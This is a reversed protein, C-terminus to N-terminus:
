VAERLRRRRSLETLIRDHEAHGLTYRRAGLISLLIFLIPVASTLARIAVLVVDPNEVNPEFGVLDLAAFGLAVGIAGSLKRV